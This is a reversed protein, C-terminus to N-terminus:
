YQHGWSGDSRPWPDWLEGHNTEIGVVQHSKPNIQYQIPSKTNYPYYAVHRSTDSKKYSISSEFDLDEHALYLFAHGLCIAAVKAITYILTVAALPLSGLAMISNKFVTRVLPDSSKSQMACALDSLQKFIFGFSNSLSQTISLDSNAGEEFFDNAQRVGFNDVRDWFQNAASITGKSM